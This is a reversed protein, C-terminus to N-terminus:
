RFVCLKASRFGRQDLHLVTCAGVYVVFHVVSILSTKSSAGGLTQSRTRGFECANLTSTGQPTRTGDWHVLRLRSLQKILDDIMDEYMKPTIQSGSLVRTLLLGPPLLFRVRVDVFTPADPFHGISRERLGM